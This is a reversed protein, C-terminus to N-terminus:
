CIICSKLAIHIYSIRAAFCSCVICLAANSILHVTSKNKCNKASKIYELLATVKELVATVIRIFCDARLCM